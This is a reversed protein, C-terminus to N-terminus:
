GRSRAPGEGSYCGFGQELCGGMLHTPRKDRVCVPQMNVWGTAAIAAADMKFVLVFAVVM